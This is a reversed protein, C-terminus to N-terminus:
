DADPQRDPHAAAVPPEALANEVKRVLKPWPSCDLKVRRASYFQPVLHCDAATLTDGCAFRGGHRGILVELAAFGESIWHRSWRDIEEQEYKLDHRLYKLVRLNGLPHMDCAVVMAMARIAARRAADGPLLPPDPYREDLWEIIASSQTLVGDPTELAPVLGQPNRALHEPSKQEGQRLEVPAQHYALGKIELAIRTRYSTGSRWYGHLVLESM